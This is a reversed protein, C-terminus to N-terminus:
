QEGGKITEMLGGDLFLHLAQFTLMLPWVFLWERLLVLLWLPLKWLVGPLQPGFHQVFWMPIASIAEAVALGAFLVDSEMTPAAASRLVADKLSIGVLDPVPQYLGWLSLAFILACAHAGAHVRAAVTRRFRASTHIAVHSFFWGYSFAWIPVLLVLLVWFFTAQNVRVLGITLLLALVYALAARLGLMFMGGRLRRNWPSEPNLYLELSARRRVRRRWFLLLAIPLSFVFAVLWIGNDSLQLLLQSLIFFAAVLLSLAFLLKMGTQPQEEAM